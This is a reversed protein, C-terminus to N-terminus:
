FCLSFIFGKHARVTGVTNTLQYDAQSGSLCTSPDGDSPRAWQTLRADWLQYSSVPGVPTVPLWEAWSFKPRGSPDSILRDWCPIESDCSKIPRTVLMSMAGNKLLHYKKEPCSRQSLPCQLWPLLVCTISTVAPEELRIFTSLTLTALDPPTLGSLKDTGM